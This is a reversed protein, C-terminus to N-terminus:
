QKESRAWNKRLAAIITEVTVYTLDPATLTATPSHSAAGIGITAMGASVGAQVGAEADEVVVCKHPPVGLSKAAKLFVEPDPKSRSICNGDVVVDFTSELGIRELITKCNKSSSGVAIRAGRSKLEGILQLAGPLIDSPSLSQLLQRYYGNKREALAQKEDESYARPSKELIIELSEMRSVGRLRNNIERDFPIGEEDALKKWAQYHCDDTSVIVGDLDFIVACDSLCSSSCEIDNM